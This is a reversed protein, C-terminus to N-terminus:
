VTSRAEVLIWKMVAAVQPTRQSGAKSLLYFLRSPHLDIDFPKVLLGADVEKQVFPFIGLSVGQGSLAAQLVMNSDTITMEEKAKVIAPLRRRRALGAM